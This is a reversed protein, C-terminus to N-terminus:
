NVDEGLLTQEAENFRDGAAKYAISAAEKAKQESAGKRRAALLAIKYASSCVKNRRKQRDANRAKSAATHTKTKKEQQKVKAMKQEKVKAVKTSSAAVTSPAAAPKRLLKLEKNRRSQLSLNHKADGHKAAVVQLLQLDPDSLALDEKSVTTQKEESATKQKKGAPAPESPSSVSERSLVRKIAVTAAHAAIPAPGLISDSSSSSSSSSGSSSAGKGPCAESKRLVSASFDSRAGPGCLRSFCAESKGLVSAPYESAGRCAAALPAPSPPSSVVSKISRFFERSGVGPSGGWSSPIAPSSRQPATEEPKAVTRRRRQSGGDDDDDDDDGRAGVTMEEPGSEKPPLRTMRKLVKQINEVQQHSAKKMASEYVAEEKLRRFQSLAVRIWYDTDDVFDVENKKRTNLVKDAQALFVARKVKTSLLVGNPAIAALRAHLGSLKSLWDVDIAQKFLNGTRARQKQSPLLMGWLDLSGEDRCWHLIAQSM